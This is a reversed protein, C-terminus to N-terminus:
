HLQSPARVELIPQINQEATGHFLNRETVDIGLNALCSKATEFRTELKQNVFWHVILCHFRRHSPSWSAPPCVSVTMDMGKKLKMGSNFAQEFDRKVIELSIGTCYM